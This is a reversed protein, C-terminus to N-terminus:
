YHQCHPFPCSGVLWPTSSQCAFPRDEPVPLKLASIYRLMLSNLRLLLQPPILRQIAPTSVMSIGQILVVSNFAAIHGVLWRSFQCQPVAFLLGPAGQELLNSHYCLQLANLAKQWKIAVQEFGRIQLDMSFHKSLITKVEPLLTREQIGTQSLCTTINELWKSCRRPGYKHICM